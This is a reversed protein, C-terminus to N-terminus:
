WPRGGKMFMPPSMDGRDPSMDGRDWLSRRGRGQIHGPQVGGATPYLRAIGIIERRINSIEFSINMLKVTEFSQIQFYPVFDLTCTFVFWMGGVVSTSFLMYIIPNAVSNLHSLSQIFLTVYYKRQRNYSDLLRYVDLLQYVFYPSWCFVFAAIFYVCCCM